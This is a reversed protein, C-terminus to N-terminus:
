RLRNRMLILIQRALLLPSYYLSIKGFEIVKLKWETLLGQDVAFGCRKEEDEYLEDPVGAVHYERKSQRRIPHANHDNVFEILEARILPMFIFLLIVKDVEDGRYLGCKQLLLFLSRWKGTQIDRLQRWLGEIKVNHVSPGWIFCDSITISAVEEESWGESMAAQTFMALQADGALLTEAGKDARLFNPCIDLQEVAELYQKLVSLQARNATGCYWWIIKRSYADVAAYIQIGYPALKDHGDICWVQNPGDTIYNDLRSRRLGPRRSAVGVPNVERLAKEVDQQRARHGQRRRLNTLTWKRGYSRGSGHHFLEQVHQETELQREVRETPDCTRRLWRKKLRIEQVQNETVHLGSEEAIKAAIKTDNWLTHHYLDDVRSILDLSTPANTNQRHGWQQLRRKLTRESVTVGRSYLWAIVESNKNGKIKLEIIDTQFCDITSM